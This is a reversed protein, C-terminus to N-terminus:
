YCLKQNPVNLPLYNLTLLLQELAIQRDCKWWFSGLIHNYILPSVADSPQSNAIQDNEALEQFKELAKLSSRNGPKAYTLSADKSFIPEKPSSTKGVKNKKPLTWDKYDNTAAKHKGGPTTNVFTLRYERGRRGKWDADQTVDVFGHDMLEAFAESMRRRNSNGLRKTLQDFTCVIKGNNYGNMRFVLEVLVARAWLSLDIYAASKMVCKPIGVWSGGRTDGRHDAKHKKRKAM